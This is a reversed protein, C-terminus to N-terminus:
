TLHVLLRRRPAVLAVTVVVSRINVVSSRQVKQTFLLEVSNIIDFSNLTMNPIIPFYNM